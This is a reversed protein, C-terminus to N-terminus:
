EMGLIFHVQFFQSGVDAMCPCFDCTVFLEGDRACSYVADLNSFDFVSHEVEKSM